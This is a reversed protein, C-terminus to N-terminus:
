GGAQSPDLNRLFGLFHFQWRLPVAQIESPDASCKGKHKLKLANRLLVAHAEVEPETEKEEV